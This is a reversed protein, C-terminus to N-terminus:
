YLGNVMFGKISICQPTRPLHDRIQHDMPPRPWDFELRTEKKALELVNRQDTGGKDKDVGEIGLGEPPDLLYIGWSQARVRISPQM